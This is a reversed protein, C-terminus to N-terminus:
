PQKGGPQPVEGGFRSRIKDMDFIQEPRPPTPAPTMTVPQTPTPAPAAPTTQQPQAPPPPTKAPEEIVVQPKESRTAAGTAVDGAQVRTALVPAAAIVAARLNSAATDRERDGVQYNATSTSTFPGGIWGAQASAEVTVTATGTSDVTATATVVAERYTSDPLSPTDLGPPPTLWWGIIEAGQLTCGPPVLQVLDGADIKKPEMRTEAGSAEGGCQFGARVVAEAKIGAVLSGALTQTDARLVDRATPRLVGFTWGTVAMAVAVTGLVIKSVLRM